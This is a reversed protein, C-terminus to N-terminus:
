LPKLVENFYWKKIRKNLVVLTTLGNSAHIKHCFDLLLRGIHAIAM